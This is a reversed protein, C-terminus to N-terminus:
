ADGDDRSEASPLGDSKRSAISELLWARYCVLHAHANRVAIVNQSSEAAFIPKGCVACIDSVGRGSWSQDHPLVFLTGNAFGERVTQRLDALYGTGDAGSLREYTESEERWISYCPLHSWVTAPGVVENEVESPAITTGCVICIHGTGRGAWVKHPAPFLWGSALRERVTQRLASEPLPSGRGSAAQTLGLWDGPDRRELAGVTLPWLSPLFLICAPLSPPLFYWSHRIPSLDHTRNEGV